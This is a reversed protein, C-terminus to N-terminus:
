ITRDVAQRLWWSTESRGRNFWKMRADWKQWWEAPLKGLVEVHEKAMWDASPHFGGFLQRQGM